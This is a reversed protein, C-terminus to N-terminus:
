PNVNTDVPQTDTDDWDEIKMVGLTVATLNVILNYTYAKGPLWTVPPLNVTLTPSSTSTTTGSSTTVVDYQLEVYIDGLTALPQPILMLYSNATACLDVLSGDNNLTVSGNFLQDGANQTQEVHSTGTTTWTSTTNDSSFIYTGTKFVKGGDYYVRLSKINVATKDGYNGGLKASFGIKSLIHNFAFQVTPNDGTANPATAAVLDVQASATEQTTFTIKPNDSSQGDASADTVTSFAFFTLKEWINNNKRPWFKPPSYTWAPDNWTVSQDDMFNPDAPANSADWDTTGTYYALVTFGAGPAKLGDVDVVTAKPSAAASGRSVRDLFTGFGIPTAGDTTLESDIVESTACSAVSLTAAVAAALFYVKRM